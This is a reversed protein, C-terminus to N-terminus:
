IAVVELGPRFEDRLTMRIAELTGMYSSPCGGCAGQYRITLVNDELAVLELDGGDLQLSPRITADLIRDIEELEPGLAPRPAKTEAGVKEVFNEDHHDLHETIIEQVIQDLVPWDLAGTQTVTLVNEFFHVQTVGTVELLERAMPVHECEEPSQYSVRGESKLEKSVVYKRANPNPTSQIRIQLM